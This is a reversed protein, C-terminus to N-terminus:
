YLTWYVLDTDEFKRHACTEHPGWLFIACSTIKFDRISLLGVYTVPRIVHFTMFNRGFIASVTGLQM